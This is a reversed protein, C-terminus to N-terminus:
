AYYGEHREARDLADRVTDEDGFVIVTDSVVVYYSWGTYELYMEYNECEEKTNFSVATVDYDAHFLECWGNIGCNAESFERLTDEDPREISDGKEAAIEPIVYDAFIYYRNDTEVPSHEYDEDIVMNVYKPYGTVVVNGYQMSKYSNGFDSRIQSAYDLAASESNFIIIRLPDSGYKQSYIYFYKLISEGLYYDQFYEDYGYEGAYEDCTEEAIKTARDVYMNFNVYGVTRDLANTVDDSTGWILTLDDLFEVAEDYGLEESLTAYYNKASAKDVFEVVTICSYDSEYGAMTKIGYVTRLETGVLDTEPCFWAETGDEEAMGPLVTGVLIEYEDLAGDDLAAELRTTLENMWSETSTYIVTYADAYAIVWNYGNEYCNNNLANYYAIADEETYFTEAYIFNMGLIVYAEAKVTIGYAIGDTYYNFNYGNEDAIAPLVVNVLADFAPTDESVTPLDEVPPEIPLEVFGGNARDIVEQMLEANSALMITYEDSFEMAYPLGNQWIYDFHANYYAVADEATHFAIIHVWIGDIDFQAIEKVTIGYRFEPNSSYSVSTGYNSAMAPLIENALYSYGSKAHENDNSNNYVEDIALMVMDYDGHLLVTEEIVSYHYRFYGSNAQVYLELHEMSDFCIVYVGSDLALGASALVGISAEYEGIEVYEVYTGYKEALLPLVRQELTYYVDPVPRQEGPDDEEPLDFLRLEEVVRQVMDYDGYIIIDGIVEYAYHGANNSIFEKLYYPDNYLDAYIYGDYRCDIFVGRSLHAGTRDLMDTNYEAAIAPFIDKELRDFYYENINISDDHEPPTPPTIEGEDGGHEPHDKPEYAEIAALEEDTVTVTKDSNVEVEVTITSVEGVNNTHSVYLTGEGGYTSLNAALTFNDDECSLIEEVEETTWLHAVDSYYIVIKEDEGMYNGYEDVIPIWYEGVIDRLRVNTVSSTITANIVEGTADLNGLDVSIDFTESRDCVSSLYVWTSHTMYDSSVQYERDYDSDYWEGYGNYAGRVNLSVPVLQEDFTVTLSDLTFDFSYSDDLYEICGDAYLSGDNYQLEADIDVQNEPTRQRYALSANIGGDRYTIVSDCGFEIGQDRASIDASVHLESYEIVSLDASLKAEFGIALRGSPIGEAESPDAGAQALMAKILSEIDKTEVVFKVGNVEDGDIAFAIEVDVYKLAADILANAQDIIEEETPAGDSSGSGEAVVILAFAGKIFREVYSRSLSYWEGDYEVDGATVTPLYGTEVVADIFAALQEEVDTLEENSLIEYIKEHEEVAGNELRLLYGDKYGIVTRDNYDRDVVVLYGDKMSVTNGQYDAHINVDALMETLDLEPMSKYENIAEKIVDKLTDPTLVSALYEDDEDPREPKTGPDSPDSPDGPDSPDSPDSPDEPKTGPDAPDSPQSSSPKKANVITNYFAEDTYGYVIKGSHQLIVDEGEEELEAMSDTYFTKATKSDGFEVAWFMEGSKSEATIEKLADKTEVDDGEAIYFANLEGAEELYGLKKEFNSMSIKTETKPEEEDPTETAMCSALMLGASLLMCLALILSIIKKM